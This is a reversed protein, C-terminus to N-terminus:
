WNHHALWYNYAAAWSGYRSRAYSSCWKLQTVPNTAWDAGASSMKHGPTAQCLGYGNPTNPNTPIAPCSREGQAKTPCWGSEHSIIYDAYQYENPAIGALAMDDKIGSLSTGAVIIQTVAQQVIITQLPTREGTEKKVKYTVIQQGESGQQRIASTGFSLSADYITQVPIPITQSVTIVTFGKGVVYIQQDTTIPTNPAPTVNDSSGLRIHKEKLLGDVTKAQTRMPTPTGYLNVNIATARDIVIRTGISNDALFNTPVEINLNDEPYVNVGAQKAISRPTTAASLTYIRKTGDVIQAPKARYINIRYQNQNIPATLGPEVTDGPNLKIALEGLLAGVTPQKTPAVQKHGDHSVIVIFRDKPPLKYSGGNLTIFVAATGIILAFFLVVFSSVPHRRFQKARHVSRVRLSARGRNRFISYRKQSSKKSRRRM